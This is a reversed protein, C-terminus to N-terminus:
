YGVFAFDTMEVLLWTLLFVIQCATVVVTVVAATAAAAQAVASFDLKSTAVVYAFRLM